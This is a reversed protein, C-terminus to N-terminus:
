CILYGSFATYIKSADGYCNATNGSQGYVAFQVYVQQGTTLSVFITRSVYKTQNGSPQQVRSTFTYSPTVIFLQAYTCSSPNSCFASANFFYLGNEPATFYGTSNNYSSERDYMVTNYIVTYLAGNGTVSTSIASKFASFAPQYPNTIINNTIAIEPSAVLSTGNYSVMGYQTTFSTADTGGKSIEIPINSDISNITM